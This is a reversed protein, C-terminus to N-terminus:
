LKIISFLILLTIVIGTLIGNWVAYKKNNNKLSTIEEKVSDNIKIIQDEIGELRKKTADHSGRIDKKLNSSEELIRGQIKELSRKIEENILKLNISNKTIGNEIANFLLNKSEKVENINNKIQTNLEKKNSVSLKKQDEFFNTILPYIGKTLREDIKAVLNSSEFSLQQNLSELDRIANRLDDELEKYEDLHNSIFNEFENVKKEIRENFSASILDLTDTVYVVRKAIDDIVGEHSGKIETEIKGTETKFQLTLEDKLDSLDKMVSSKQIELEKNYNSITDVMQRLSSSTESLQQHIPDYAAVTRDVQQRASEVATLNQKIRKIVDIIEQDNM